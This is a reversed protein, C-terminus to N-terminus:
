RNAPPLSKEKPHLNQRATQPEGDRATLSAEADALAAAKVAREHEIQKLTFEEGRAELNRLLKLAEDRRALKAAIEKAVSWQAQAHAKAAALTQVDINAAAISIAIVQRRAQLEEPSAAGSQRLNEDRRTRLAESKKRVTTAAEKLTQEIKAFRDVQFLRELISQRGASTDLLLKQFQGQPLLVVQRFQDCQFGMLQEVYDTVETWGDAQPSGEDEPACGTRKWLTAEPDQIMLGSGRKKPRPQRPTRRVRYADHGLAFDFVVETPTSPAAHDSRMREPDRQNGSTQGYLVFCIADLISTKGSGTQGHILFFSRGALAGFDFLQEAAYPGFARVLLRLPKM